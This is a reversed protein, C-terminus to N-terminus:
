AYYGGDPAPGVGDMDCVGNHLVCGIGIRRYSFEHFLRLFAGSLLGGIRTLSEVAQQSIRHSSRDGPPTEFRADFRVPRWDELRLRRISGDLRGEM